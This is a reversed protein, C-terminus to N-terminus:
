CDDWFTSFLKPFGYFVKKPHSKKTNPSQLNGGRWFCLFIEKDFFYLVKNNKIEWFILFDKKKKKKLKKGLMTYNM